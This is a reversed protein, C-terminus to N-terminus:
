PLVMVNYCKELPIEDVLESNIWGTEEKDIHDIYKIAWYHDGANIEGQSQMLVEYKDGPFIYKGVITVDDYNPLSRISVGGKYKEKAEVECKNAEAEALMTAEQNALETLVIGAVYTARASPDSMADLTGEINEISYGFEAVLTGQVENSLADLTADLDERPLQKTAIDASQTMLDAVQTQMPNINQGNAELTALDQAVETADFDVKTLVVPPKTPTVPPNNFSPLVLILIIGLLIIGLLINTVPLNRPHEGNNMPQPPHEEQQGQQEPQESM